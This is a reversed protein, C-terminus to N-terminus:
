IISDIAKERIAVADSDATTQRPIAFFSGDCTGTGCVAKACYSV